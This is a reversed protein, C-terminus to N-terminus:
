QGVRRRRLVLGYEPLICSTTHAVPPRKPDDSLDTPAKRNQEGKMAVRCITRVRRENYIDSNIPPM